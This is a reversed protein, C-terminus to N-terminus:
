RAVLLDNGLTELIENRALRGQKGREPESREFRESCVVVDLMGM